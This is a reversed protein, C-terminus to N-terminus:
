FMGHVKSNGIKIEYPHDTLYDCTNFLKEADSSICKYFDETKIEYALTQALSSYDQMM